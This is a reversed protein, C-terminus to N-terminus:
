KLKNLLDLHGGLWDDDKAKPKSAPPTAHPNEAIAPKAVVAEPEEDLDLAVSVAPKEVMLGGDHEADLSGSEYLSADFSSMSFGDELVALDLDEPAEAYDDDKDIELPFFHEDDKKKEVPKKMEAVVPQAPSQSKKAPKAPKVVEAAIAPEPEEAVVANEPMQIVLKNTADAEVGASIGAEAAAEAEAIVENPSRGIGFRNLISWLMGIIAGALVFPFVVANLMVSGGAGSIGSNLAADVVLLGVIIFIFPVQGKNFFALRVKETANGVALAGFAGYTAGATAVEAVNIGDMGRVGNFALFGGVVYSLSVVLPQLGLLSIAWLISVVNLVVFGGWLVINDIPAIAGKNSALWVGVNVAVLVAAAAAVMVLNMNKNTKMKRGEM